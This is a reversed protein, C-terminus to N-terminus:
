PSRRVDMARAFGQIDDTEKMPFKPWNAFSPCFRKRSPVPHLEPGMEHNM